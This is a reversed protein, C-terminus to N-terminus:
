VDGHWALGPQLDGLLQTVTPLLDADQNKGHVVVRFVHQLGHARTGVSVYELVHRWSLQPLRDSAYAFAPLEERRADRM